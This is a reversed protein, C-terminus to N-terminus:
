DDGARTADKVTRRLAGNLLSLAQVPQRLDHSAAALFASNAKNAREASLHAAIIDQEMRKRKSVDRIVSSILGNAGLAVPSLSIEVPFESGDKRRAVLEMSAGMARVSPRKIFADRHEVHRHRIRDPMLLEIKQGRLEDRSYGFMIEAQRSVIEIEGHGNVIIMADPASDLLTRFLTESENQTATEPSLLSM